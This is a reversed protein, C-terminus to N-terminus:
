YHLENLIHLDQKLMVIYIAEGFHLTKVPGKTETTLYISWVCHLHTKSQWMQKALLVHPGM